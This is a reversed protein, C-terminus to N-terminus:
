RRNQLKSLLRLIELYLWVLTILLAMGSYWEMYKPAGSRIYGEIADFDLFFNFAAIGCIVLSIAIGVGGNSNLFPVSVGFFHLVWDIMYVVFIGGTAAIVAVRMGNTVRVIRTAYLFLFLALVSFTLLVANAVIGQYRQNLVGSIAGLVLGELAAYCPAVFPSTAPKFIGVMSFVLAGLLPALILPGQLAPTSWGYAAAGGCILLLIGTKNVTGNLDMAADTTRAFSAERTLM